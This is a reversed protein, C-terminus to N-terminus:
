IKKFELVWVYPNTDWGYGRKANISDWLIKFYKIRIKHIASVCDRWVCLESRYEPSSNWIGEKCIADQSIDQVLEICVNTIELDIRSAWRPMFISPRWKGQDSKSWIRKENAKYDVALSEDDNGTWLKSPKISDYINGVCWTERVWLRDGPLGYPCLWGDKPKVIRRTQIKTGDIIAQAMDAKFLIPREKM